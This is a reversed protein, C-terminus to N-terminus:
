LFHFAAAARKCVHVAVYVVGAIPLRLFVYKMFTWLM